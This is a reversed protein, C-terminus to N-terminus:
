LPQKLADGLNLPTNFAHLAGGGGGHRDSALGLHVPHEFAGQELQGSSGPGEGFSAARM